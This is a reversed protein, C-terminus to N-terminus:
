LLDGLDTRGRMRRAGGAVKERLPLLVTASRGLKAATAEVKAAGSSAVVVEAGDALAGRAVALGIGSSGGIVVVRRGSLTRAGSV